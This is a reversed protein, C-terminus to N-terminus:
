CVVVRVINGLAGCDRPHEGYVSAARLSMVVLCRRFGDADVYMGYMCVM